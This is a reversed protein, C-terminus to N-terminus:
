AYSRGETVVNRIFPNGERQHRTFTSESLIHLEVVPSYELMVDYALDRLSDATTNQDIDDDLVILVDVDSSLGHAEGRITSGFLYLEAIEDGHQSRARNVFAAAADTHADAPLTEHATEDDM